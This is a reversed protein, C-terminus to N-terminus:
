KQDNQNDIVEIKAALNPVLQVRYAGDNCKVIWVASDPRSRQTDREASLAKDCRHGQIRLRAALADPPMEQAYSRPLGPDAVLAALATWGFAFAAHGHRVTRM